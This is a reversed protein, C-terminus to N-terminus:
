RGNGGKKIATALQRLQKTNSVECEWVVFVRWGLAKLAQQNRQDREANGNLKQQWFETNSTPMYAFRCGPHQHWYCGQVEVVARYRPLVIDPRGPLRRDHLRFRLGSRHLFRRVSLEPKTDKGKIASMM